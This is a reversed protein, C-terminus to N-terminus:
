IFGFYFTYIEFCTTKKLLAFNFFNASELNKQLFIHSLLKEVLLLFIDGVITAM